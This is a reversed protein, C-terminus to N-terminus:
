GAVAGAAGWSFSYVSGDPGPMTFSHSQSLVGAAHKGQAAGGALVGTSVSNGTNSPYPFTKSSSFSLAGGTVQKLQEDNLEQM